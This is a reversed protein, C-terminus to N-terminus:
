GTRTLLCERHIQFSLEIPRIPIRPDIGFAKKYAGTWDDTEDTTLSIKVAGLVPCLDTMAGLGPSAAVAERWSRETAAVATLLTFAKEAPKGKVPPIIGQLISRAALLGPPRVLDALEKGAMLSAAPARLEAFTVGADRSVAATMWSLVDTEEKRLESQMRLEAFEERAAQTIAVLAESLTDFLEKAAEGAQAPQNQALRSAFEDLQAKVANPNFVKVVSEAQSRLVRLRSDLYAGANNIFPDAWVPRPSGVGVACLLALSARDAEPVQRHLLESLLSGALVSVELDNGSMRFTLDAAKFAQRFTARFGPDVSSRQLTARVIDLTKPEDALKAIGAWRSTLVDATLNAETGTTCIRYWDPFHMHM